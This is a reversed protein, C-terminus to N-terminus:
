GRLPAEWIPSDGGTVGPRTSGIRAESSPRESGRVAQRQHKKGTTHKPSFFFVRLRQQRAAGRARASERAGERKQARGGKAFM